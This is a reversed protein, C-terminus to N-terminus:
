SLELGAEKVINLDKRIINSFDQDHNHIKSGMRKVIMEEAGLDFNEIRISCVTIKAKGNANLVHGSHSDSIKLQVNTRILTGM